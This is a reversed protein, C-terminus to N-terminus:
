QHGILYVKLGKAGATGVQTIDVTIEDDAAIATTTLTPTTVATVTTKENNDFSLKNTTMISTGNLKVDAIFLSGATQAVTLSAKISTLTLAYPARLTVKGTGTTLNTVEDSAAIILCESKLAVRADAATSFDSITSALQTGTHNARAELTADSSNATAGTAIGTLKTRETALFAKNTTGDTLTDASQTGTHNTRALLTADSSNATAATAIGNLKTIQAQTAYGDVSATAAPIAITRNASLDGGGTLPATTSILRSSPVADTIGYGGLTTPTSGIQAFTYDGSQATVAGTRGFVTLVADTPTLLENWDAMTGAVGSNHAFSKNLDTRVAIDGEEATLALQAVQSAVVFVKTILLPPPTGTLQSYNISLSSQHQTVNTSAVRADALTGSTVQSAAVALAAQHQTVNNQQVRADALVGSTLQTAALALAAQHQTVNSQAVRADALTGSAIDSTPHTHSVTAFDTAPHAASTGLTPLGSLDAYAGTHAVAAAITWALGHRLYYNADNPADSIGGGGGSPADIWLIDWNANSRKAAIQGTTGGAPLGPAPTGAAQTNSPQAITSSSVVIPSSVIVNIETM